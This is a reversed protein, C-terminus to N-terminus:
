SAIVKAKDGLKLCCPVDLRDGSLDNEESDIAMAGQQEDM